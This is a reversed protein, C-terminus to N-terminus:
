LQVIYNYLFTYSHTSLSKPSSLYNANRNQSISRSTHPFTKVRFGAPGSAIKPDMASNRRIYGHRCKPCFLHRRLKTRTPRGSHNNRVFRTNFVKPRAQSGVRGGIWWVGGVVVAGVWWRYPRCQHGDRSIVFM